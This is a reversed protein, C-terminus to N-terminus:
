VLLCYKSNCWWGDVYSAKKSPTRLIIRTRIVCNKGVVSNLKKNLDKISTIKIGDEIVRYGLMGYDFGLELVRGGNVVDIWLKYVEGSSECMETNKTNADPWWTELTGYLRNDIVIQEETIRTLYLWALMYSIMICLTVFLRKKIFIIKRM